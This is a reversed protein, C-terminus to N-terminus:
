NSVEKESTGSGHFEQTDWEALTKIQEKGVAQDMSLVARESCRGREQNDMIVVHCRFAFREWIRYLAKSVM